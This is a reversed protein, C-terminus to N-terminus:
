GPDADVPERSGAWCCAGPYIELEGSSMIGIKRWSERVASNWANLIADCIGLSM